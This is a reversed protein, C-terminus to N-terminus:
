KVKGMWTNLFSEVTTQPLDLYLKVRHGEQTVRISDYAQLMEPQSSPTNLRGLAVLAKLASEVQQADEDKACIGSAVGNLGSRFDFYVTASDISEILKNLNAAMSRPDVSLHVASGTYAAWFQSAAPIEKIAAALAPPPGHSTERQDLFMKLDNTSGVAATSSNIFVVAAAQTGILNFGKYGFRQAGEKELKPEMENAFKGRGLLVGNKGNSVFLLEWLDKQPDLGTRQAFDEIAPLKRNALYKKYAATERLAELRTGALLVTDAPILTALSADIKVGTQPSTRSCAALPLLLLVLALLLLFLVRRNV